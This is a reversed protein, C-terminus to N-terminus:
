VVLTLPGRFTRLSVLNIRFVAVPSGFLDCNLLKTILWFIEFNPEKKGSGFTANALSESHKVVYLSKYCFTGAFVIKGNHAYIQM